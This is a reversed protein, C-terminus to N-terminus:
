APPKPTRVPRAGRNRCRRAACFPRKRRRRCGCRDAARFRVSCLARCPLRAYFSFKKEARNRVRPSKKRWGGTRNVKKRARPIIKTAFAVSFSTSIACIVVERNSPTVFSSYAAIVSHKLAVTLVYLFPSSTGMGSPLTPTTCRPLILTIRVSASPTRVMKSCNPLPPTNPVGM